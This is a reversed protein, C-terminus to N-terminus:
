MLRADFPCRAINEFSIETVIVQDEREVGERGGESGVCGRRLAHGAVLRDLRAQRM